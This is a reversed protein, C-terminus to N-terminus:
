SIGSTTLLSEIRNKGWRPLIDISNIPFICLETPAFRNIGGTGFAMTGFEINMKSGTIRPMQVKETIEHFGSTKKVLWM